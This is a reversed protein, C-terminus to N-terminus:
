PKHGFKMSFSRCINSNKCRRNMLHNSLKFTYNSKSLVFIFNCVALSPGFIVYCSPSLRSIINTYRTKSLLCSGFPEQSKKLPISSIENEITLNFKLFKAEEERSLISCQLNIISNNFFEM